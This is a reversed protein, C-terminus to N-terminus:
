KRLATSSLKTYATPSLEQFMGKYAEPIPVDSFRLLKGDVERPAVKFRTGLRVFENLTPLVPTGWKPDLLRQVADIGVIFTAGPFRRAKDIYLPDDETFLVNRGKLYAARQLMEGLKLPEKNPPNTTIHFVTHTDAYSFHGEHPPNFAGPFLTLDPYWKPKGSGEPHFNPPENVRRGNATFFPLKFLQERAQATVDQAFKYGTISESPPTENAPAEGFSRDPNMVLHIPNEGTVAKWLLELGFCDALYGDNARIHDLHQITGDPYPIPKLLIGASALVGEPTVVAAYVRHESKHPTLTAVAATLGLGVPKKYPDGNCAKM